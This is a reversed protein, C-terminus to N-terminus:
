LPTGQVDLRTLGAARAARLVETYESRTIGRAIEPYDHAKYVPTYQSMLNVYTDKPLNGAIWKMVERSGAVRNPMVLHRIMLGRYMLGDPAARAVGVQRHMELLAKKTDEPYGAAGSSYKSAADAQAYKFDPLYIDIVGDLLKLVDLREWGCTNYVLPLRLGRDAALDLALLIHAPYHTPTVLNVNHCGLEQLRLMMGALDEISRTSGRGRHNIKWNICFVCRLGCHSFFITGSGHKGVLPREEGFHAHSSAIELRSSARCFGTEGQLRDVGCERYCLDCSKMRKWLAEGRSKLAGSRHLELYAPEFKADISAKRGSGDTTPRAGAKERCGAALCLVSSGLGAVTLYLCSELFQRRSRAQM